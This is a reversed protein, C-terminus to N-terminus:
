AATRVGNGRVEPEAMRAERRAILQRQWELIALQLRSPKDAQQTVRTFRDM